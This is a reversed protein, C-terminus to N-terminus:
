RYGTCVSVAPIASQLGGFDSSVGTCLVFKMFFSIKVSISPNSQFGINVANFATPIKNKIKKVTRLNSSLHFRSTDRLFSEAIVSHKKEDETDTVM